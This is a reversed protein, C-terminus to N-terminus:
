RFVRGILSRVDRRHASINAPMHTSAAEPTTPPARTTLEAPLRAAPGAAPALAEPVGTARPRSEDLGSWARAVEGEQVVEIRAAAVLPDIRQGEAAEAAERRGAVAADHVHPIRSGSMLLIGDRRVSQTRHLGHGETGVAARQRGAVDRAM